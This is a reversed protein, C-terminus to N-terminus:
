PMRSSLNGSKM